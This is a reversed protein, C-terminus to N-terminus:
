PLCAGRHKQPIPPSTLHSCWLSVRAWSARTVLVRGSTLLSASLIRARALEAFLPM